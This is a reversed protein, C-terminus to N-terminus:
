YFLFAPDRILVSLLGAWAASPDGEAEYLEQWLELNAQVEPGDAAVTAGFLRLHLAQIQAIMPEPASAPTETFAIQTFLRAEDPWSKDHRAVSWAAAQALREFSLAMTANFQPAPSTVFGGDIGGALTRLGYTDTTMMDYDSYTFRYGTLDEIQSALLDPRTLKWQGVDGVGRYEQSAMVARILSRMTLGQDLFVERLATLERTDALTSQRQLLQEFVQETACTPLREDTAIQWALDEINFSPEGYFSPEVETSTRWWQEREPHYYAVDVHTASSYYFGWLYSSLPDLTNHCAVCGPNSKLAENIAGEDLLNVDRDFEIPRTLYDTCFLLRSIANARGRNANAYTTTYRWWLSNTSLIGAAPRDDTYRVQRWGTEDAPYDLPWVEAMLHDAMTWEGTVIEYWPLDNAAVHALIRLPEEGISKVLGPHDSSTEWYTVLLNDSQTQYIESFLAVVRDEFREDFLYGEILPDLQSPDQSVLALEDVTPRVGRLDLSARILVRVPDVEAVEPETGSGTSPETGSGTSPGTSPETPVTTEDVLDPEPSCGLILPLLLTLGM